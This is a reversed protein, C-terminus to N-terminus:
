EGSPARERWVQLGDGNASVLVLGDIDTRAVVAGVDALIALLNERPHGYDNGAGVPIVAVVPRLAEYLRPDQDGSGHHAVKVVEYPAALGGAAAVASQASASLDGLFLSRPVGGGIVELVISADNGSPFAHGEARPWLVRWHASGLTGSHGRHARAAKAGGAVVSRVLDEDETSAPPGHLLMGVRGIVADIGGVHDLDFHTLVLLDIRDIGLRALCDELPAPEPGADILATSEGSRLVMADGQGVDCAAIGWGRPVALAGAVGGLAATGALVGVVGAVVVTALARLAADARRGRGARAIVVAIAGGFVALSAAGWWGELWPVLAEPLAAAAQATAAVWASPVWAIAALGSALWPLPAAVCAALGVITAVPAAPAAVLNALVGYLPVTPAILVILPGCALQAALPVSLALALARPMWRELGRALPRALTLLALTAAASLAFGLSGALWPDAILLGIVALCLVSLGAGPRGLLVALMAVGAMAAARVVSPEPTVLAVFGALAVLAVAVRVARPAGLGAAAAFALGVVIACNAGSVATLHSLSSAKMAGDLEPGVARTDGVALGPLLGAAPEPLGATTQVFGGRLGSTVGLLWPPGSRVEVGRSAFVVLVAREGADARMATGHVIVRSGLDLVFDGGVEGPAVQVSVPVAVATHAGGVEILTAEAEFRLVGSAAREVKTSVTATVQVARGGDVALGLAASRAPQAIAVTSAASAAVALALIGLVVGTRRAVPSFAVVGLALLAVGWLMLSLAGSAEPLMIAGLAAAWAALALPVLRADRARRM